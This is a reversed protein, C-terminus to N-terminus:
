IGSPSADSVAAGRELGRRKALFVLAGAPLSVALLWAGSSGDVVASAGLLQLAVPTFGIRGTNWNLTLKGLGLVIFAAWLLKELRPIKSRICVFLAALILVPIAIAAVFFVLHTPSKGKLGFATRALVSADTRQVHMGELQLNPPTGSVLAQATLFTTPYRYEILVEVQRVGNVLNWHYGVLQHSLEKEKPLFEMMRAITEESAPTRLKEPLRAILGASDGRQLLAVSSAVLKTEPSEAFRSLM